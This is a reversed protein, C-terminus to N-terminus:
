ILELLTRRVVLQREPGTMYGNDNAEVITSVQECSLGLIGGINTIIDLQEEKSLAMIVDDDVGCEHLCWGIACYVYGDVKPDPHIDILQEDILNDPVSWALEHLTKM